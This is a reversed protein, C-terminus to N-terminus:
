QQPGKELEGKMALAADLQSEISEASVPGRVEGSSSDAASAQGMIELMADETMPAAGGAEQQNILQMEEHSFDEYKQTQGMVEKRKRLAASNEASMFSTLEESTQWPVRGM